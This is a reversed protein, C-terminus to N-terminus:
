LARLLFALVAPFAGNFAVKGYTPNPGILASYGLMPGRGISVSLVRRPGFEWDFAVEGDDEVLVEPAPIDRPLVQALLMARDFADADVAEESASVASLLAEVTEDCATRFQSSHRDHASELLARLSDAAPSLGTDFIRATARTGFQREAVIM